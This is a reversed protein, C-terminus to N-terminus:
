RSAWRMVFLDLAAPGNTRGTKIGVDIDLLQALIARLEAPRFNRAQKLSKTAIFPKVEMEKAMAVATVGRADLERAQLLLRFQRTIMTLLYLPVAGGAMLQHLLVLARRGDRSGLADVMHFINAEQLSSVLREVDQRSITGSGGLYTALKELEQDLLRLNAGIYTALLAMAESSISVGKSQARTRIWQELDGGAPVAFNRVDGKCEGALRLFPHSAPLSRAENLVLRTSEPLQPLYGELDRLRGEDAPADGRGRRTGKGAASSSLLDHVIVLRCGAMFPVTDCAARLEGPGLSRGELITTNLDGVVPDMQGRLQAVAESRSFEDEGHFIYLM